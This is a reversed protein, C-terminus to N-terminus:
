VFLSPQEKFLAKYEPPLGFYDDIFRNQEDITEDSLLESAETLATESILYPMGSLVMQNGVFQGHVQYRKLEDRKNGYVICRDLWDEHNVKGAKLLEEGRQRVNTRSNFFAEVRQLSETSLAERMKMVCSICMAYEFIIQKGEITRQILYNEVGNLLHKDCTLCHDFPEVSEFPLFIAPIDTLSYSSHSSNQEMNRLYSFKM